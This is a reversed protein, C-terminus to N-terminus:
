APSRLLRRHVQTGFERKAVALDFANAAWRVKAPSGRSRGRQTRKPAGHPVSGALASGALTSRSMGDSLRRARLAAVAM